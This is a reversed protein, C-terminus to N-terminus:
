TQPHYADRGEYFWFMCLSLSAGSQSLENGAQQSTRLPTGLTPIITQLLITTVFFPSAKILSFKLGTLAYVLWVCLLNMDTVPFYSIPKGANHMSHFPYTPYAGKTAKMIRWWFEDMIVIM